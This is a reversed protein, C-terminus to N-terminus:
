RLEMELQEINRELERIRQDKKYNAEEAAILLNEIRRKIDELGKITKNM